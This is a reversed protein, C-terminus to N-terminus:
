FHLGCGLMELEVASRSTAPGQCNISRAYQCWTLRCVIFMYYSHLKPGLSFRYMSYRIYICRRVWPCHEFCSSVQCHKSRAYQCWTLRCAVFMCYPHSKPRISFRYM